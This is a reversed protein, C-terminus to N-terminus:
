TKLEVHLWILMRNTVLSYLEFVNRKTEEKLDPGGIECKWFMEDFKEQDIGAHLFEDQAVSKRSGLVYTIESIHFFRVQVQAQLREKMILHYFAAKKLIVAPCLQCPSPFVIVHNGLNIQTELDTLKKLQLRDFHLRNDSGVRKSQLFLIKRDKLEFVLDAGTNHEGKRAHIIALKLRYNEREFSKLWPKEAEQQEKWKNSALVKKIEEDLLQKMYEIEPDLQKLLNSGLLTLTKAEDVIEPKEGDM